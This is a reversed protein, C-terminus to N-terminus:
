AYICFTSSRLSFDLLQCSQIARRYLLLVWVKCSYAVGRHYEEDTLLEVSAAAGSDRDHGAFPRYRQSDGSSKSM